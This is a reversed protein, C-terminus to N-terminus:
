GEALGGSNNRKNRCDHEGRDRPWPDGCGPCRDYIRTAQLHRDLAVREDFVFCEGQFGGEPKEKLYGLIGGHLQLVKAFGRRELDLRAKECRIGGTCFIATPLDPDLSTGVERDLFDSFEKFTSTGPDRAEPFSGISVEYDNRVDLMQAKGQRVLARVEDWQQASMQGQHNAEPRLELDRAAVIQEKRLVKWRGFPMEASGSDQGGLDPFDQRLAAFLAEVGAPPGAVTGNCGEESLLVSGRLGQNQGLLDLQDRLSLVREPSLRSFRYFTRVLIPECANPVVSEM